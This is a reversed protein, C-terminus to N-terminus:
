TRRSWASGRACRTGLAHWDWSATPFGHVLLLVPKQKDNWDGGRRFFIKTAAIRAAMEGDDRWRQLDRPLDIPTGHM